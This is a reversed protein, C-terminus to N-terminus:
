KSRGVCDRNVSQSFKLGKVGRRGGRPEADKNWQELGVNLGKFEEEERKNKTTEM